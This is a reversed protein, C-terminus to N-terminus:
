KANRTPIDGRSIIQRTYEQIVLKEVDRFSVSKGKSNRLREEIGASDIGLEECRERAATILTEVDPLPFEIPLLRDKVAPDLMDYRNTTLIVVSKSPDFDDLKHFFVNNQAVHWSQGRIWDRKPFISEADDILILSKKKMAGNFIKNIQQESEGYLGRAVHSGDVFYLDLALDKALAKALVTKGIGVSGYFIFGKIGRKIGSRFQHTIISRVRKFIEYIQEGKLKHIDEKIDAPKVPEMKEPRTEPYM